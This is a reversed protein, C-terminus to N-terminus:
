QKSGSAAPNVTSPSASENKFKSVPIILRLFTRREGETAQVPLGNRRTSWVLSSDKFECILIARDLRIVDSCDLESLYRDYLGMYKNSGAAEHFSILEMLRDLKDTDAPNWPTSREEGGVNQRRQLRRTIDKPVTSAAFTIRQGVRIRTDLTYARGRYILLADLLDVALPNEFSGEILDKSGSVMTLSNTEKPLEISEEWTARLSKTGAAPIGVGQICFSAENSVSEKTDAEEGNEGSLRIKYSPM